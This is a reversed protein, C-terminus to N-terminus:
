SPTPWFRANAAGASDDGHTTTLRRFYEYARPKNMKVGDGDAYMRGLKWIAGPVGQEAADELERTGILHAVAALTAGGFVPGVTSKPGPVARHGLRPAAPPAVPPAM